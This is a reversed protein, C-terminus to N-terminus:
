NKALVRLVRGVEEVELNQQKLRAKIQEIKRLTKSDYYREGCDLCALVNVPVLVIDKGFKIKEEVERKQLNESNCIVCKM